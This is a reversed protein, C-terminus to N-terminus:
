NVILMVLAIAIAVTVIAVVAQTQQQLTKVRSEVLTVLQKQGEILNYINADVLELHNGHATAMELLAATEGSLQTETRNISAQVRLLAQKLESLQATNAKAAYDAGALATEAEALRAQLDDLMDSLSMKQQTAEM